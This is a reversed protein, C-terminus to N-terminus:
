KRKNKPIPYYIPIMNKFINYLDTPKRYGSEPYLNQGTIANWMEVAYDTCNYGNAWDTNGKLQNLLDVLLRQKNTIPTSASLFEYAEYLKDKEYNIQFTKGQNLGDQVIGKKFTGFTKEEGDTSTLKLWLHGFRIWGSAQSSLGGSGPNALITLTGWNEDQDTKKDGQATLWTNVEEWEVREGDDNVYYGGEEGEEENAYVYRYAMGTLDTLRMPNNGVYVYPSWSYYNESHPDM